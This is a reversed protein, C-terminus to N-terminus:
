GQAPVDGASRAAELARATALAREGHRPHDLWSEILRLDTSWGVTELLQLAADVHDEELTRGVQFRAFASVPAREAVLAARALERVMDPWRREFGLDIGERLGLNAAERKLRQIVDFAEPAGCALFADTSPSGTGGNLAHILPAAEFWARLMADASPADPPDLPLHLQALMGIAEAYVLVAYQHSHGDLRPGLALRQLVPEAQRTPDRRLARLIDSIFWPDAAPDRLGRLLLAQRKGVALEDYFAEWYLDASPHDYTRTVASIALSCTEPTEPLALMAEYERVADEVTFDHEIGGVGALADIVSSNMWPNDTLFGNLGDRVAKRDNDGLESGRFRIIDCIMLRLHYVQTGWIHNLLEPFRSPMAERRACRLAAVLLFLQGVSLSEFSDLLPALGLPAVQEDGRPWSNQVAHLLNQLHRAGGHHHMGYVTGFSAARWAVRLDPHRERLRAAEAILRRDVLAFLDLLDPLLGDGLAAPIVGLYLGDGSEDERGNPLSPVLSSLERASAVGEPLALTIEGYRRRLDAILDRMRSLVHSRAKAGARASLASQLLRADPANSLLTEIERTTACGGLLFERLEAHLPQRALGNLAAPTDARRLVADAAFFDGILDHRFGVRGSESWLLGAAVAGDIPSTGQPDAIRDAAARPIATTFGSRMATALDTLGRYAPLAGAAKLRERTFAHYLSFRGDITGAERLVQALIAADHTTAVVELSATEGVALPRGLHAAVIRGAQARDPQRLRISAGALSAPLAIPEQGTLIFRAGHNIRVAQLAAVLDARRGAACENLADVHLVIEAGAAAAAQFLATVKLRTYRAADTRLLLGLGRDFDRARILIPLDGRKACEDAMRNLLETKGSGSPGIIQLQEGGASRAALGRTSGDGDFLPEIYPGLTARRLDARAALYGTIALDAATPARAGADALGQEAAFAEWRDLTLANARPVKLQALLDVYGGISLKFDGNPIASGVPRMPFLCLLGGIAERPDSRGRGRLSDTVTFRNELAQQYPNSGDLQHRGGDDQEISWPGNVGGRVPHLYGKIEVVIATSETAVILDIQRRKPGLVVNALIIADDGAAELDRRLRRVCATEAPNTVADGQFLRVSQRRHVM